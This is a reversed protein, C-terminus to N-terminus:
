TCTYSSTDFLHIRVKGIKGVLPMMEPTAILTDFPLDGSQIRALLDTDGVVDAGADLAAQADPGNAFVAVRVKKGTGHPLSAIGKIAQEPKRPDVALKIAIDVTEDFNAWNLQKMQEVARFVHIPASFSALKAADNKDKRLKAEEPSLKLKPVTTRKKSSEKSAISSFASSQTLLRGISGANCRSGDVLTCDIQKTCNHFLNRSSSPLSFTLKGTAILIM